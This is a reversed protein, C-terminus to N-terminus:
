ARFNGELEGLYKYSSENERLFESFDTELLHNEDCKDQWKKVEKFQKETLKYVSEEIMYLKM